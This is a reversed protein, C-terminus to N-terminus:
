CLSKKREMASINEASEATKKNRSPKLKSQAWKSTWEKATWKTKPRKILLGCRCRCCAGHSQLRANYNKTWLIFYGCEAYVTKCIRNPIWLPWKATTHKTVQGHIWAPSQLSRAKICVERSKENLHWSTLMLFVQNVCCFCHLRYWFLTVELRAAM